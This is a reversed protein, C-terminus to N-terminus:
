GASQEAVHQHSVMTARGDTAEGPFFRVIEEVVHGPVEPTLYRTTVTSGTPSVSRETIEVCRFTREGVTRMANVSSVRWEHGGAETRLVVTPDAALVWTASTREGGSDEGIWEITQRHVTAPVIAGDITITTPEGASSEAGRAIGPENGIAFAQKTSTGDVEQLRVLREDKAEVVYVLDPQVHSQDALSPDAVFVVRVRTGTRWGAWPNHQLPAIMM